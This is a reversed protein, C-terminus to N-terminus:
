RSVVALEMLALALCRVTFSYTAHLPCRGHTFARPATLPKQLLNFRIADGTWRSSSCYAGNEYNVHILDFHHRVYRQRLVVRPGASSLALVPCLALDPRGVKIANRSLFFAKVFSTSRTLNEMTIRKGVLHTNNM